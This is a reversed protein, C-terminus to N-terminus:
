RCTSTSCCSSSTPSMRWAALAEEGRRAFRFAFRDRGQRRVPLGFDAQDDVTLIEAPGAV